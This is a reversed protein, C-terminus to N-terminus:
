IRVDSKAYYHKSTVSQEIYDDFVLELEAKYNIHTEIEKITDQLNVLTESSYKNNKVIKLFIHDIKDQHFQFLEVGEFGEKYLRLVFYLSPYKKGDSFTFIDALRAVKLEMLPTELGCSCKEKSLEGADGNTYRLFPMAWNRLGTVIMPTQGADNVDGIETIAMDPNLHMNGESCTCAIHIVEGCGYLNHVVCNFATEIQEKQYDYLKESTSYVGKITDLKKDNDVCWRAFRSGSSAYCVIVTIKQEKIKKYWLEFDADNAKWANLHTIGSCYDRIISKISSRTNDDKKFGWISAVQEGPKWGCRKYIRWMGAVIYKGREKETYFTLPKGTSGTTHGANLSSLDYNTAILKEQNERALEKTLVPIKTIDKVSKIDDPKLKIKDFLDRYYPVNSYCHNVFSVFLSNQYDQWEKESWNERVSLEKHLKNVNMGKLRWAISIISKKVYVGFSM